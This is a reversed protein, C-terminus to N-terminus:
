KPKNLFRQRLVDLTMPGKRITVAVLQGDNTRSTIYVTDGARIDALRM